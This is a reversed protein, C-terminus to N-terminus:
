GVTQRSNPASHSSRLSAQMNEVIKLAPGRIPLGRRGTEGSNNCNATKSKRQSASGGGIGDTKPTEKPCHRSANARDGNPGVLEEFYARWSEDVLLPARGVRWCDEVYTANAGTRLL